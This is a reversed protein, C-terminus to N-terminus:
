REEQVPRKELILLFERFEPTSRLGDIWDDEQMEELYPLADFSDAKEIFRMAQTYQGTLSYLCALQYYAALNGAKAAQTLKIEADRLCTDTEAPDSTYQSINILTIGLDLLIMDNEEEHKVALKFYHLAKYFNDIESTIEGLHSFGLGMQYQVGKFEPDIMQVHALLEIAKTYYQTEEHFDGFMDLTKAYHFLWEPHLYVANKQISLAREFQEISLELWKPNESVEGLCSLCLAYDFHYYSNSPKLEIAKTFFRLAMALMEEDGDTLGIMYYSKGVAHWHTHLTRDKSLGEQYQEISQFHYDIDDYYRGLSNLVQGYSFCISSCSPESDEAQEIKNQAELLLDLREGIEGILALSEAWLSLAKGSCIDLSYAKQCKEIASKLKKSDRMKRGSNLCFEAFDIWLDVDNPRTQLAASYCESAQTFHDEDHTYEYLHSLAKSLHRWGMHFTTPCRSLAHKFFHIAKVCLRIDNIFFSIQLCARGYEDWFESPLNESLEAAKQFCETALQFDMPEKSFSALHSLVSAIDWYLESLIAPPESTSLELAKKLKEEAEIFYHKENFTKGLFSLASGWLSWAEFFNPSLTTAMKFKKSALLLTKEKGSEKGYEFLATGQRFYLSSRDPVLKLAQEFLQLGETLEGRTLYAEGEQSLTEAMVTSDDFNLEISDKPLPVQLNELFFKVDLSSDATFDDM